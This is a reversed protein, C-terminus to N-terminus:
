KGSEKLIEQYTMLRDVVELIVSTELTFPRSNDSYVTTNFSINSSRKPIIYFEDKSYFTRGAQIEPIEM